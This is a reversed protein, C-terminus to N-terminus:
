FTNVRSARKPTVGGFRDLTPNLIMNYDGMCIVCADPYQAMFLVADKVVQMGAHPPNYVGMLVFPLAYIIGYIFM